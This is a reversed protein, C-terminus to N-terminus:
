TAKTRVTHPPQRAPAHVVRTFGVTQATTLYGVYNHNGLLSTEEIEETPCPLDLIRGAKWILRSMATGAGFQKLTTSRVILSRMKVTNVAHTM